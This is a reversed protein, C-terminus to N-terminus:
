KGNKWAGKETIIFNDDKNPANKLLKSKFGVCSEDNEEREFEDRLVYFDESDESSSKVKKLANIFNDLLEKAEKEVKSKDM